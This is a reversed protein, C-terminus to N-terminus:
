KGRSVKAKVDEVFNLILHIHTVPPPPPTPIVKTTYFSRGDPAVDYGVGPESYFRLDTDKFAFLPQPTGLRGESSVPMPVSMMHREGAKDPLTLFFLEDGSPNWLPCEGGDVSVTQHRGLGPYPQIYVDFRNLENSGYALWRGDRSIAPWQEKVGTTQMIARRGAKGGMDALVWIDEDKLGLLEGSPTWAGPIGDEALKEPLASGDGVQWAIEWVGRPNLWNFAVHKGDLTWVRNSGVEGGAGLRTIFRGELLDFVWVLRESLGEVVNTIRLQTRPEIRVNNGYSKPPTPLPTVNGSRDIKVLRRNDPWPKQLDELYALSGKSTISLQGAGTCDAGSTNALAQAVNDLIFVPEGHTELRAADFAVAYLKKERLFVLYGPAYRADVANSLLLKCKRTALVCAFVQEDSWTWIRKKATYVFATNGPLWQPSVHALEGQQLTTVPKLEGGPTFLSVSGSGTGMTLGAADYAGILLGAESWSMGFPPFQVKRVMPEVLGSTINAKKIMGEAWFVVSQGDESMAPVQADETGSLPRAEQQDLPRVYLQQVGGRRGVFIVGRGDSTWALATRSGGPNEVAYSVNSGGANVEEAPFVPMDLRAIETGTTPQASRLGWILAATAAIGILLTVTALALARRLPWLGMSTTSTSAAGTGGAPEAPSGLAAEIDLRVDAIDHLRQKRDKVLCRRLLQRVPVPTGAPLAEWNPESKVVAALVDTVTDGSFCSRGTLLEFLIVGFAWVDARKDVARGRAQEPSMYAATGLIVGAHTMQNTLTPSKSVDPASSEGQFAKALGFDLIKVKGEPTVKVNAPKLDRHIVGKEHAAELGEAIQRCIDLTEDLPIRGKKLRESLTQGEVLELVLFPKGDAQELGYISAINPHNLSALLKAEREFRALREADHAFADPLVKIAVQRSLNTDEARYVEGMGGQGLKETIRYHSLSTGIM